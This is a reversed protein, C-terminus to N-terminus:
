PRSGVSAEDVDRFRTDGGFAAGGQGGAKQGDRGSRKSLNTAGSMRSSAVSRVSMADDDKGARAPARAAGGRQSAATAPRDGRKESLIDDKKQRNMAEKGIRSDLKKLNEETLRDNRLFKAVENTIMSEARDGYKLKFKNILLGKLQERKQIDLLREKRSDTM